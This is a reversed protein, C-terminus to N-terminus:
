PDRNYVLHSPLKLVAAASSACTGNEHLRILLVGPLISDIPPVHLPLSLPGASSSPEQPGAFAYLHLKVWICNLGSAGPKLELLCLREGRYINVM